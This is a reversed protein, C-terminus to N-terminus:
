QVFVDANLIEKGEDTLASLESMAATGSIITDDGNGGNITVNDAYNNIYDNGSGGDLISNSGDWNDIFDGSDMLMAEGDILSNVFDCIDPQAGDYNVTIFFPYEFILVDEPYTRQQAPGDLGNMLLLSLCILKVIRKM